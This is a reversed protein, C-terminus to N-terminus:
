EAPMEEEDVPIGGIPETVRASTLVIKHGRLGTRFQQKLAAILLTAFSAFLQKEQGIDEFVPQAFTIRMFFNQPQVTFPINGKDMATLTDSIWHRAHEVMAENWQAQHQERRERNERVPAAGDRDFNERERPVYERNSHERTSTPREDRRNRFDRQERPERHPRQERPTFERHSHERPEREGSGEGDQSYRPNYPRHERQPRERRQTHRPHSDERSTQEQKAVRKEDFYLAIKASHTTLGIFNKKAEELVKITFEAPKGAKIWGQEVAKAISSGEHVISKM